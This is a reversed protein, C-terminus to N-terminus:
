FPTTDITARGLPSNELMLVNLKFMVLQKAKGFLLKTNGCNLEQGMFHLSIKAPVHFLIAV